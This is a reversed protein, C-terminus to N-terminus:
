KKDFKIYKKVRQPSPPTLLSGLATKIIGNKKQAKGYAKTRGHLNRVKQAAFKPSFFNKPRPRNKGFIPRPDSKVGGGTRLPHEHTFFKIFHSFFITAM